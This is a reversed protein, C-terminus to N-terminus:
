FQLEPESLTMFHKQSVQTRCIKDFNRLHVVEEYETRASYINIYTFCHNWMENLANIFPHDLPFIWLAPIGNGGRGNLQQFVRPLKNQKMFMYLATSWNIKCFSWHHISVSRFQLAPGKQTMKTNRLLQFVQDKTFYFELNWVEM